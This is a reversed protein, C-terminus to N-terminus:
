RGRYAIIYDASQTLVVADFAGYVIDGDEITLDNSSSNSYDGDKALDDGGVGSFTQARLQAGGSGIAKLGIWYNIGKASALTTGTTLVDFGAQGISLNSIEDGTFERNGKHAM